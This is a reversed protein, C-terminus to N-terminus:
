AGDCEVIIDNDLRAAIVPEGTRPRRAVTDDHAHGLHQVALGVKHKRTYIGSHVDRIIHEIGAGDRRRHFGRQHSHRRNRQGLPVPAGRTVVKGGGGCMAFPNDAVNEPDTDGRAGDHIHIERGHRWRIHAPDHRCREVLM